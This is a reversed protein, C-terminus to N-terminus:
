YGPRARKFDERIVPPRAQFASGTEGASTSSTGSSTLTGITTGLGAAPVTAKPIRTIKVTVIWYGTNRNPSADNIGLFLRGDTAAVITGDANVPFPTGKGQLKAILQGPNADAIVTRVGAEGPLGEAPCLTGSLGLSITGYTSVKLHTGAVLDIGTDTWTKDGFLPLELGERHLAHKKRLRSFDISALTTEDIKSVLPAEAAQPTPEESGIRLLVPQSAIRETTEWDVYAKPFKVVRGNTMTILVKKGEVQYSSAEIIRGNRFYIIQDAFVCCGFLLVFIWFPLIFTRRM